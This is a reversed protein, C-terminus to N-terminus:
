AVPFFSPVIQVALGIIVLVIGTYYYRPRIISMVNELHDVGSTFSGGSPKLYGTARMMLVFGIIELIIGSNSLWNWIDL